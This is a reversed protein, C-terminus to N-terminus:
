QTLWIMMSHELMKTIEGVVKTPLKFKQVVQLAVRVRITKLYPSFSVEKLVEFQHELVLQQLSPLLDFSCDTIAHVLVCHFFCFLIDLLIIAM